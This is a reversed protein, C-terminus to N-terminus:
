TNSFANEDAIKKLRTIVQKMKSNADAFVPLEHATYIIFVLLKNAPKLCQQELDNKQLRWCERM